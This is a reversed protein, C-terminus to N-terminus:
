RSGSWRYASVTWRIEFQPEPAKADSPWSQPGTIEAASVFLYPLHTELALTLDRLKTAPVTVDYQVSVLDLGHEPTVPLAFASRVEGGSREVMTKVDNQLSAQALTASEGQLMYPLSAAQLRALQLAREAEPRAAAEARFLALQHISERSEEDGQALFSIALVSVLLLVVVVAAALAALAARRGLLFDPVTM